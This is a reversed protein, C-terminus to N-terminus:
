DDKSSKLKLVVRNERGSVPEIDVVGRNKLSKLIRSVKAKSFDTERVLAKQVSSGDNETLIKVIQNEDANLVSKVVERERKSSERKVYLAVALMFIIIVAAVTFVLEDPLASPQLNYLISYQLNDGASINVREWFIMIKNEDIIVTKGDHPFFSQNIIREALVANEPLKIKVFVLDVPLSIGYNISFRRSNGIRKISDKTVFSLQLLDNEDTMGLFDCSIISGEVNNKYSCDVSDFSSSSTLNEVFFGLQYELHSVPEVFQLTIISDVSNDPNISDEIGYYELSLGQVSGIM